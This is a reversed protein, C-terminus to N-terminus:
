TTRRRPRSTGSNARSRGRQAVEDRMWPAAPAADAERPTEAHARNRDGRRVEMPAGPEENTDPYDTEGCDSQEPQQREAEPRELDYAPRMERERRLPLREPEDVQRRWATLDDIRFAAYERSRATPESHGDVGRDEPQDVLVAAPPRSM